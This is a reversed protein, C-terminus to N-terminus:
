RLGRGKIEDTQFNIRESLKRIIGSVIIEAKCNLVSEFIRQAIASLGRIKESDRVGLKRIM